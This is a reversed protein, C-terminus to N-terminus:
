DRRYNHAYYYIADIGFDDYDDFVPSRPVGLDTQTVTASVLASIEQGEHLLCVLQTARKNSM